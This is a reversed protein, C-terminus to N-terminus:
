LESQAQELVHEEVFIPVDQAIGLALAALLRILSM